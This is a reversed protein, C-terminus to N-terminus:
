FLLDEDKGGLMTAEHGPLASPPAAVGGPGAAAAAADRAASQELEKRNRDREKKDQIKKLRYFEEREGEDLETICYSITNRLRPMVVYEIANVRRNTIKIVEDLTAFSTQLSALEILGELAKEHIKVSEKIQTGGRSLGLLDAMNNAGDTEVKFVPLHVGAVNDTQTRLKFTAQDVAELLQHSFERGYAFKARSLSFSGMKMDDGMKEKADIIKRLIARFRLTLADSKKKLLSHGMEAGKLKTKLIQLNMRTPFIPLRTQNNAM